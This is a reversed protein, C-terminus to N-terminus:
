LLEWVKGYPILPFEDEFPNDRDENIEQNSIKQWEWPDFFDEPETSPSTKTLCCMWSKM